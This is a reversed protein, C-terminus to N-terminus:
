VDEKLWPSFLLAALVGTIYGYIHAPVNVLPAGFIAPLYGLLIYLLMILNYAVVRRARPAAYGFLFFCVTSLGVTPLEPYLCIDPICVACLYGGLLAGLPLEYLFVAGTLCWCNLLACLVSAHLMPALLRDAIPAGPVLNAASPPLLVSLTLVAIALIIALNKAHPTSVM